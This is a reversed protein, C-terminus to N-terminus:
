INRKTKEHTSCIGVTDGMGMLTAHVGRKHSRAEHSTVEGFGWYKETPFIVFTCMFVDNM